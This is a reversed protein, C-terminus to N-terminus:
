AHQAAERRVKEVYKGFFTSWLVGAAFVITFVVLHEFPSNNSM